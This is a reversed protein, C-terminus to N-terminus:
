ARDEQLARGTLLLFADALTPRRVDVSAVSVGGRLVWDLADPLALSPDDVELIVSEGPWAVARVAPPLAPFADRQPAAGEAFRIEVRPRFGVRELLKGPADVIDCRGDVIFGVRDCHAAAFDPDHASLAVARGAAGHDALAEALLTRGAPDLGALPEDLLLLRAGAAFAVALALRRRMGASYTGAPRDADESLGFRELFAAAAARAEAPPAGRLELLLAANERGTLWPRFVPQDPVFWRGAARAAGASRRVGPVADSALLRLLTSKGSGNPGLLGLREGERVELSLGRLARSGDPYTWVLGDAVAPPGGELPGRSVAGAAGEPAGAASRRQKM